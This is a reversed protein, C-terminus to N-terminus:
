KRKERRRRRRKRHTNILFYDSKLRNITIGVINFVDQLNFPYIKINFCKICTTIMTNRLHPPNVTHGVITLYLVGKYLCQPETCTTRGM